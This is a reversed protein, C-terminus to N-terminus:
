PREPLRMQYIGYPEFLTVLFAMGNLITLRGLILAKGDYIRNLVANSYDPAQSYSYRGAENTLRPTFITVQKGQSNLVYLSNDPLLVFVNGSRSDVGSEWAALNAMGPGMYQVVIKKAMAETTVFHTLLDVSPGQLRTEFVLNGEPTYKQVIPAVVFTVYVNDRSDMTIAVRNIATHYKSDKDKYKQGYVLSFSKLEGFSRLLKGDRSYVSVLKGKEPQGLFVEGKSNVAIGRIYPVRFQNIFRGSADLVQIRDNGADYVYILNGGIAFDDPHFFEGPGAGVSGISRKFNMDRDYILIRSMKYDLVFYEDNYSLVRQPQVPKVKATQFAPVLRMPSSTPPQQM